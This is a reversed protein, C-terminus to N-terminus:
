WSNQQGSASPRNWNWWDIQGLFAATIAAEQKLKLLEKTPGTVVIGYTKIGNKEVYRYREDIKLGSRSNFLSQGISRSLREQEALYKMEEVYARTRRDAEGNVQIPGPGYDLGHESFGWVDGASLLLVGEKADEHLVEQGTDVALWTLDLNYPALFAYMEELSMFRDFSIALQSVTGEPLMELTKWAPERRFSTDEQLKTQLPFLFFLNKKRVGDNWVPRSSVKTFVNTTEFYGPQQRDGGVKERLEMQISGYFLGVQAGSSGAVIGPQTFNVLDKSVRFMDEYLSRGIWYNVFLLVFGILLSIGVTYAANSLRSKWKGWRIISRQKEEPLFDAAKDEPETQMLGGGLLLEELREAYEPDDALRQRLRATEEAGLEGRLYALLLQDRERSKQKHDELKGNDAM